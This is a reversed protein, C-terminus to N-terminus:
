GRILKMLEQRASEEEIFVGRLSSTVMVSNQKGVGRMRMCLHQAEIICAAGKPELNKMLSDTVQDGIREQIQFRKSYCDVLRALKSVGIVRKNPIYAVHAKGSFPLLHHECLSYMEIDKLLVMQDCQEADFTKFLSKPNINYGSLLEGYAKVVRKPTEKIGERESDEGVLDCLDVFFQTISSILNQNKDLM